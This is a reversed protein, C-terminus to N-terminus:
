LSHFPKYLHYYYWNRPTDNRKQLLPVFVFLEMQRHISMFSPNWILHVATAAMVLWIVQHVVSLGTSSWSWSWSWSRCQCRWFSCCCSRCRSYNPVLLMVIVPWWNLELWKFHGFFNNTHIKFQLQRSKFSHLLKINSINKLRKLRKQSQVLSSLCVSMCVSLRVFQYVSLQISVEQVFPHISAQSVSPLVSSRVSLGTFEIFPRDLPRLSPQVALHISSNFAEDCHVKQDYLCVHSVFTNWNRMWQESWPESMCHVCCRFVLLLLLM